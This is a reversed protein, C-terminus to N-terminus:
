SESNDNKMGSPTAARSTLKGIIDSLRNSKETKDTIKSMDTLDKMWKDGYLYNLAEKNTKQGMLDHWMDVIGHLSARANNMNKSSTAFGGRPTEINIVHEFALKMDKLKNQAEPVNELNSVLDNYKFDNKLFTNFFDSARLKKGGMAKEMNNRIIKKQAEDRAIKYEPNEIDLEKIFKDKTIHIERAKKNAGQRIAIGEMDDLRNKITDLYKYNNEPVGKLSQSYAPDKEIKTIASKIINNDKLSNVINPDIDKQYVNSYLESIKNDSAISKDYITALLDNISNKESAYKQQGIKTKEAAAEGTRGYQGELGAVFPNGSAEGPSLTRGLRQGAEYRSQVDEPKLHALTEIGPQTHQLGLKEGIKPGALGLGAGLEAGHVGGLGSGEGLGYGAAGGAVSRLLANVIPNSTSAFKGLAGGAAGLGAGYESGKMQDEPNQIAGILAGEGAGKATGLGIKGLLGPKFAKMANAIYPIAKIGREIGMGPIFSTGLEGTFQGANSAADNGAWNARPINVGPILDATGIASNEAGQFTGRAFKGLDSNPDIVRTNLGTNNPMPVKIGREALLDKPQNPNIGKEAFLDRAM